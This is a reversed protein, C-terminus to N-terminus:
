FNCKKSEVWGMKTVKNYVRSFKVKDKVCILELLPALFFTAKGWGAEFNFHTHHIGEQSLVRLYSLGEVGFM